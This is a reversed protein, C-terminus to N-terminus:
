SCRWTIPAAWSRHCSMIRSVCARSAPNGAPVIQLDFPFITTPLYMPSARVPLMGLAGEIVLPRWSRGPHRQHWLWKEQQENAPKWSGAADPTWIRRRDAPAWIREALGVTM